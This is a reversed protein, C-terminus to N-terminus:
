KVSQLVCSRAHQIPASQADQARESAVGLEMAAECLQALVAPREEVQLLRAIEVLLPATAECLPVRRSLDAAPMRLAPDGLFQGLLQVLRQVPLTPMCSACGPAHALEALASLLGDCAEVACYELGVALLSAAGPWRNGYLQAAPGLAVFFRVAAEASVVAVDERV